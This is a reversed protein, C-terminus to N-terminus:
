PQRAEKLAEIASELDDLSQALRQAATASDGSDGNETSGSRACQSAAEDAQKQAALRIRREIQVIHDFGSLQKQCAELSAVDSTPASPASQATTDSQALAGQTSAALLLVLAAVGVRRLPVGAREERLPRASGSRDRKQWAGM